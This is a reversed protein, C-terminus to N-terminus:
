VSPFHNPNHNPLGNRYLQTSAFFFNKDTLSFVYSEEEGWMTPPLACILAPSLFTRAEAVLPESSPLSLSTLWWVQAGFEGRCLFSYNLGNFWQMICYLRIGMLQVPFQRRPLLYSLRHTTWWGEAWIIQHLSVCGTWLPPWCTWSNNDLSALLKASVHEKRKKREKKIHRKGQKLGLFHSSLRFSYISQRDSQFGM